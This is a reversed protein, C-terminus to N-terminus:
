PIIQTNERLNPNPTASNIVATSAPPGDFTPQGATTLDIQSSGYGNTSSIKVVAPSPLITGTSDVTRGRGDFYVTRPYPPDFQLSSGAPLNFVRPPDLAGNGDLDITVTYFNANVISVQAMQAPSPHRRVSDLRAKELYAALQRAENVRTMNQRARMIRMTAFGTIVSIMAVVILLELSSFGRTEAFSNKTLPSKM